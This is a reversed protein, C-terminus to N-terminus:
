VGFTSNFAGISAKSDVEQNIRNIEAQVEEDKWNPHLTKIATELSILGQQYQQVVQAQLQITDIITSPDFIVFAKVNLELMAAIDNLMRDLEDQMLARKDKVTNATVDNLYNIETATRQVSAGLTPDYDLVSIGCRACVKAEATEMSIKWEDTRLAFQVAEVPTKADLSGAQAKYPTMFSYDMLNDRSEKVGRTLGNSPQMQPILARGRGIYKDMEQYTMSTELSMMFGTANIFQSEGIDCYPALENFETNKFRYVGLTKLEKPKNIEIDDPIQALIDKPIEELELKKQKIEEKWFGLHDNWINQIVIYESFPIKKGDRVKYFRHECFLYNTFNSTQGNFLEKFFLADYIRDLADKKLMYRTLPYITLKAKTKLEEVLEEDDIVDNVVICAEGRQLVFKSMKSIQNRFDIIRKTLIELENKDEGEIKLNGVIKSKLKNAISPCTKSNLNQYHVMPVFGTAWQNALFNNYLAIREQLPFLRMFFYDEMGMADPYTKLIRRISLPMYGTEDLGLKNYIAKDQLLDAM